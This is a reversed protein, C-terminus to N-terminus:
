HSLTIYLGKGEKLEEVLHISSNEDLGIDIFRVKTQSEPMILHSGTFCTCCAEHERTCEDVWRRVQALVLPDFTTPSTPQSIVSRLVRHSCLCSDGQMTWVQDPNAGRDGPFARGPSVRKFSIEARCMGSDEERIYLTHGNSATENLWLLLAYRLHKHQAHWCPYGHYNSM